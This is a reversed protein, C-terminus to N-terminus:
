LGATDQFGWGVGARGGVSGKQGGGVGVGVVCGWGACMYFTFISNKFPSVKCSCGIPPPAGQHEQPLVQGSTSLM